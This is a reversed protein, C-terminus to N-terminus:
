IDDETALEDLQLLKFYMHKITCDIDEYTVSEDAEEPNLTLVYPGKTEPKNRGKKIQNTKWDRISKSIVKTYTGDENKIFSISIETHPDPGVMDISRRSKLSM